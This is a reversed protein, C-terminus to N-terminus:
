WEVASWLMQPLQDDTQQITVAGITDAGTALLLGFRDRLEVGHTGLALQLLWGEPILGDFFPHLSRPTDYTVQSLPLTLSVPLADPAERYSALYSFRYGRDLEELIGAPQKRLFVTARRMTTWTKSRMM